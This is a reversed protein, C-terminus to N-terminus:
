PRWSHYHTISEDTGRSTYQTLHDKFGMGSLENLRALVQEQEAVSFQSAQMVENAQKHRQLLEPIDQKPHAPWATGYRDVTPSPILQPTHSRRFHLKPSRKSLVARKNAAAQKAEMVIQRETYSLLPEAHTDQGSRECNRDNFTKHFKVADRVLKVHCPDDPAVGGSPARTVVRPGGDIRRPSSYGTWSVPKRSRGAKM